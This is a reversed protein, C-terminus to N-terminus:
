TAQTVNPLKLCCFKYDLMELPWFDLILSDVSDGHGEPKLFPEAEYDKGEPNRIIKIQIFM